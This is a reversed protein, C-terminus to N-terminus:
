LLSVKSSHLNLDLIAKNLENLLESPKKSSFSRLNFPQKLEEIFVTRKLFITNFYLFSEEIIMMNTKKEKLVDKKKNNQGIKKKGFERKRDISEDNRSSIPRKERNEQIHSVNLRNFRKDPNVSQPRPTIKVNNHPKPTIHYSDSHKHKSNVPKICTNSNNNHNKQSTKEKNINLAITKYILKNKRLIAYMRELLDYEKSTKKPRKVPSNENPDEKIPKQLNNRSKSPNVPKKAPKEKSVSAKPKSLPRQPKPKVPFPDKPKNEFPKPNFHQEKTLLPRKKNSNSKEPLEPIENKNIKSGFVIPIKNIQPKTSNSFPAKEKISPKKSEKDKNPELSFVRKTPVPTKILSNEKIKPETLPILSPNKQNTEKLPTPPYLSTKLPESENLSKKQKKELGLGEEPTVPIKEQTKPIIQLSEKNPTVKEIVEEQIKAINDDLIDKKVLKEQKKADNIMNEEEDSSSEDSKAIKFITKRPKIEIENIEVQKEQIEELKVEKEYNIVTEEEDSSSRDSKAINYITKRPKIETEKIEFVEEKIDEFKGESIEKDINSGITEEKIIVSEIEKIDKELQEIENILITEKLVDLEEKNEGEKENDLDINLGGELIRKVKDPEEELVGEKVESGLELLEKIENDGKLLEKLENNGELLDKLENNGELLDKIRTSEDRERESILLAETKILDGDDFPSSLSEKGILRSANQEEYSILNERINNSDKYSDLNSDKYNSSSEINSEKIGSSVKKISEFSAKEFLREIKERNDVIEEESKLEETIILEKRDISPRKGLSPVKSRKIPETFEISSEPGEYGGQKQFLEPEYSNMKRLIEDIPIKTEPEVTCKRRKEAKNLLHCKKGSWTKHRNSPNPTQKLDELNQAVISDLKENILRVEKNLLLYYTATINNHKNAKLNSVLVQRNIGYNMVMEVVKENLESNYVGKVEKVRLLREDKTKMWKHAKIEEIGLRKNPDVNLVKRLLDKAEESLHDPEEYVGDLIKQYLVPTDQDEFPLYGCIMTFLVVGSSWIDAMLGNYKKGAIMEPAAYCPSGCATNLLEDQLYSNGLGFDALKLNYYSDLLLNEPKLDRHVICQSHIYEIGTLLQNYFRSAESEPLRSNSVIHEFLEGSSAYEM